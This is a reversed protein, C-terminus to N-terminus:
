LRVIYMFAKTCLELARRAKDRDLQDIIFVEAPRDNDYDENTNYIVLANGREECIAPRAKRDSRAMELRVGAGIPPVARPTM